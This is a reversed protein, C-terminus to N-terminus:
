VNNMPHCGPWDDSCERVKRNSLVFTKMCDDFMPELQPELRIVQFLSKADGAMEVTIDQRNPNQNRLIGAM